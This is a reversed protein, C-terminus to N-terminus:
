YDYQLESEQAQTVKVQLLQNVALGTIPCM